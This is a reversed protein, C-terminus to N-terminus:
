GWMCNNKEFYAKFCYFYGHFGIFGLFAWYFGTGSVSFGLLVFFFAWYVVWFIALSSKIKKLGAKKGVSVRM